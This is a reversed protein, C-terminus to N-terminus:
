SEVFILHSVFVKTSIITEDLETLWSAALTVNLSQRTADDLKSLIASSMANSKRRLHSPIPFAMFDDPTESDSDSHRTM